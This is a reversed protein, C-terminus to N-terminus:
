ARRLRWKRIHVHSDHGGDCVTFPGIPWGILRALRRGLSRKLAGPGKHQAWQLSPPISADSCELDLLLAVRLEDVTVSVEGFRIWWANVLPLWDAFQEDGALPKQLPTTSPADM